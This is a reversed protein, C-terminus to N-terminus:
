YVRALTSNKDVPLNSFALRLNVLKAQQPIGRRLSSPSHHTRQTIQEDNAGRNPAGFFLFTLLRQCALTPESDIYPM